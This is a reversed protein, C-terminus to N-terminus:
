GFFFCGAYSAKESVVKEKQFVEKEEFDEKGEQRGEEKEKGYSHQALNSSCTARGSNM